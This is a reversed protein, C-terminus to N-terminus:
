GTPLSNDIRRYKLLLKPSIDLNTFKELISEEKRELNNGENIFFMKNDRPVM